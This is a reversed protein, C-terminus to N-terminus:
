IDTKTKSKLTIAGIKMEKDVAKCMDYVTLLAVSVGTLAEMEVGTQGICSVTCEVSVGTTTIELEMGIKTILLPHCLPILQSTSKAGQIGAIRAVSIVDGKKLANEKILEITKPALDIEGSATAVRKQPNKTSVDVMAAKGNNDIHTLNNMKNNKKLVLL